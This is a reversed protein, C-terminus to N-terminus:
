IKLWWSSIADRSVICLFHWSPTKVQHLLNQLSQNSKLAADAINQELNCFFSHFYWQSSLIPPNTQLHKTPCEM